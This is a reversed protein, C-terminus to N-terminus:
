NQIIFSCSLRDLMVPRKVERRDILTNYLVIKNAAVLSNTLLWVTGMRTSQLNTTIVVGPLLIM